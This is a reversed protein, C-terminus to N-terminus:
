MLLGNFKYNMFVLCLLLPLSMFLTYMIFYIGAQLREPQYGWGIIVYLTPILSAEFFYYFLLFNSRLFSFVLILLLIILMSAYRKYYYNINIIHSSSIWILILLFIRLVILRCSITDLVFWGGLVKLGEYFPM